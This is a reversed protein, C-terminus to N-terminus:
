VLWYPMPLVQLVRHKKAVHAQDVFKMWGVTAIMLVLMYRVSFFIVFGLVNRVDLCINIGM